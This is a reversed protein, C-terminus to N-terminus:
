STYIESIKKVHSKIDADFNVTEIKNILSDYYDIHELLYSMANVLSGVADHQFILCKDLMEVLYKSGVLESCIVPIGQYLAEQVVFGYTERWQSPVVLVDTHKWVYSAEKKSFMGGYKIRKDNLMDTYEGGYFYANWNKYGQSDLIQLANQFVKYGKHLFPGGMYTFNLSNRDKRIHTAKKIGKHSIPLMICKNHDVFKRYIDYTVPSNCHIIDIYNIIQKYYNLLKEYGDKDLYKKDIERATNNINNHNKVLRSKLQKVTKSNKIYQYLKLHILWQTTSSLGSNYNCEACKLGEGYECLEHKTSLLTAKLCIGFYDHTTLIMKCGLENAAVFFEKPIGQLSHIHIVDFKMNSLWDLFINKNIPRMYKAIDKIGYTISVPLANMLEYKNASRKKIKAKKLANSKNPYLIYVEHEKAQEEMVERCYRNLGGSHQMPDALSVHLIKM